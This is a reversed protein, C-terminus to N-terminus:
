SKNELIGLIRTITKLQFAAAKLINEDTGLRCCSKIKNCYEEINNQLEDYLKHQLILTITTFNKGFDFYQIPGPNCYHEEYIWDKRKAKFDLFVQSKLQVNTSLIRCYKAGLRPKEKLGTM